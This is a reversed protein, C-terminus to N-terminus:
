IPVQKMHGLLRLCSHVTTVPHAKWEMALGQLTQFASQSLFAKSQMPELIAGIFEIRQTTWSLLLRFVNFISQVIIMISLIQTKSQGKVLCDFLFPFMHSELQQLYAGVVVMCNTFIYPAESLGFPLVTFQYHNGNMLFRLFKWHEPCM